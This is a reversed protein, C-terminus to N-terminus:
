AGAVGALLCLDRRAAEQEPGSLAEAGATYRAAEYLEGLAQAAERHGHARALKRVIARHNWSRVELGLTHLALYDFAAILEAGHGGQGSRCAM